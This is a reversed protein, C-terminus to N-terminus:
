MHMCWCACSYVFLTNYKSICMTNRVTQRKKNIPLPELLQAKFTIKVGRLNLCTTPQTFMQECKKM